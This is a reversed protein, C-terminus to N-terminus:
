GSLMEKSFARSVPIEGQYGELKLVMSRANGKMQNVKEKNILYSRHCRILFPYEQLQSELNKMNLRLLKRKLQENELFFLTCYNGEASAFLFSEISLSFAEEKLNDSAISVVQKSVNRETLASLPLSLKNAAEENRKRMYLELFFILGLIPFVGVSLTIGVFELLSHQPAYNAGIISNYLYNLVSILFLASGLLFIEKRITWEEAVFWKPFISPFLLYGSALGILVSTAFGIFFVPKDPVEAGGFPQYILLFFYVFLSSSIVLLIRARLASLFPYPKHLWAHIM